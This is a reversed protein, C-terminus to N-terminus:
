DVGRLEVHKCYSLLISRYHLLKEKDPGHLGATLVTDSDRFCQLYYADCGKIWSGIEHISSDTFFEDVVTTRFEYPIGCSMLYSVSEKIPELSIDTVGTISAYDSPASKIDMAVMDILHSEFLSRIVDPRSGNTDLKVLLDYSKIKEIFPILDAALTPEGGTICVGQLIGKRKTLFSFIEEEPIVPQSAPDCVLSKNQCFVCRFNCGGTFLTAALHGPYDLLTTKNLGHITM